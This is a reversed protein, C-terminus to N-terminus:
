RSTAAAAIMASAAAVVVIARRGLTARNLDAAETTRDSGCLNFSGHTCIAAHLHEESRDRTVSRKHRVGPSLLRGGRELPEISASVHRLRSSPRQVRFPYLIHVHNICHPAVCSLRALTSRRCRSSRRRECARLQALSRTQACRLLSRLEARTALLLQLLLLL